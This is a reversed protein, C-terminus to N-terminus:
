AHDGRLLQSHLKSHTISDALQQDQTQRHTLTHMPDCFHAGLLHKGRELWLYYITTHLIVSVSLWQVM